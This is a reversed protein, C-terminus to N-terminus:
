CRENSNKAEVRRLSRILWHVLLVLKVFRTGLELREFNPATGADEESPTLVVLTKRFMNSDGAVQYYAYLRRYTLSPM